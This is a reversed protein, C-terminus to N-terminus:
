FFSKITSVVEKTGGALTSKINNVGNSIKEQTKNKLEDAFTGDQSKQVKVNYFSYAFEVTFELISGVSSYDIDVNSVSKPFVNHLEYVATIEEGHFDMQYINLISTYGESNKQQAIDVNSSVEKINHVQDLSEIWDEFAKKLKHDQTLYFTCTWTGDYKVQGKLPVSRGKFKFDIIDQTKGPFQSTKVLAYFDDVYLNSSKFTIHCEFKSSRAGDQLVKDLLNQITSSM